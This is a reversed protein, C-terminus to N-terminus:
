RDVHKTTRTAERHKENGRTINYDVLTLMVCRRDTWTTAKLELQTEQGKGGNKAHKFLTQSAKETSRTFNVKAFTFLEIDFMLPYYM